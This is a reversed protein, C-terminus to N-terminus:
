KLEENANRYGSFFERLDDRVTAPIAAVKKYAKKNYTYYLTPKDYYLDYEYAQNTSDLFLRDKIVPLEENQEKFYSNITKQGGKASIIIYHHMPLSSKNKVISDITKKRCAPCSAQVPLILFALSDHQIDEAMTYNTIRELNKFISDQKKMDTIQEVSANKGNQAGCSVVIIILLVNIINMRLQLLCKSVKM